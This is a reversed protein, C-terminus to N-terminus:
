LNLEVDNYTLNAENSPVMYLTGRDEPHTEPERDEWLYAVLQNSTETDELTEREGDESLLTVKGRDTMLGYAQDRIHALHEATEEGSLWSYGTAMIGEERHEEALKETGLVRAITEGEYEVELEYDGENQLVIASDALNREDEAIRWNQLNEDIEEEITSDLQVSDFL